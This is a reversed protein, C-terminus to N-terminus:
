TRGTLILEETWDKLTMESFLSPNKCPLGYWRLLGHPKKCYLEM